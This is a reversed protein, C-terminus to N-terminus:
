KLFFIVSLCHYASDSSQTIVTDVIECTSNRLWETIKDGLADKFKSSTSFVKVTSFTNCPEM